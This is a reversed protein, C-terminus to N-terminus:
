NREASSMDMEQIPKNIDPCNDLTAVEPLSRNLWTPDRNEYANATALSLVVTGAIVAIMTMVTTKM